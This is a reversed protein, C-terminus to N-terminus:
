RLKRGLVDKLVKVGQESLGLKGVDADFEKRHVNGGLYGNVRAAATSEALAQEDPYNGLMENWLPKFNQLYYKQHYDEARTFSKAPLVETRVRRGLRAALEDRSQEAARKQEEDLYFVAVKYQTYGSGHRPDHASWFEELLEKYIIVDPDYEVMVAETHDGISRYTPDNKDGGAYGSLTKLV